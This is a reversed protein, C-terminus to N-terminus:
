RGNHLREHFLQKQLRVKDSLLYLWRNSRQPPKKYQHNFSPMVSFLFQYDSSRLINEDWEKTVPMLWDDWVESGDYTGILEKSIRYKHWWVIMLNRMLPKGTYLVQTKITFRTSIICELQVMETWQNFKITTKKPPFHQHRWVQPCTRCTNYMHGWKGDNPWLIFSYHFARSGM